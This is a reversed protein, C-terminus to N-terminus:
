KYGWAMMWLPAKDIGWRSCDASTIIKELEPATYAAWFSGVAGNTEKIAHPAVIAQGIRFVDYFVHAPKVSQLNIVIFRSGQKM